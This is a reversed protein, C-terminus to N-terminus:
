ARATKNRVQKNTANKTVVNGGCGHAYVNSHLHISKHNLEAGPNLKVSHPNKKKKFFGSDDNSNNDQHPRLLVSSHCLESSKLPLPVTKVEGGGEGRM